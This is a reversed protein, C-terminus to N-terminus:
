ARMLCDRQMFTKQHIDHQLCLLIRGRRHMWTIGAMTNWGGTASCTGDMNWWSTASCSGDLTRELLRDCFLNWGHEVLKDCFLNWGHEVQSGCFLNWGDCANSNVRREEVKKEGKREREALNLPSQRGQHVHSAHTNRKSDEGKASEDRLADRELTRTLEGM